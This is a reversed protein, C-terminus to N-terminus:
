EMEALTELAETDVSENGTSLEHHAAIGKGLPHFGTITPAPTDRHCSFCDIKVAAYTHCSSCFHEPDGYRVPEKGAEQKPVHCNICEQLSHQKSRVGERMTLDRKHLIFEMHNKRMLDTPEVCGQTESYRENAEPIDPLPPGAFAVPSLSAIALGALLLLSTISRLLYTM